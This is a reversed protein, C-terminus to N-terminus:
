MSATSRLFCFKTGASSNLDVAAAYFGKRIFSFVFVDPNMSACVALDHIDAVPCPLESGLSVGFQKPVPLSCLSLRRHPSKPTESQLHIDPGAPFCPGGATLCEHAASSGSGHFAGEGSRARLGRKERSLRSVHIDSVRVKGVPLTSNATFEDLLEFCHRDLQSMETGLLQMAKNSLSIGADAIRSNVAGQFENCLAAYGVLAIKM